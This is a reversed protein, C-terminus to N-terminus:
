QIDDNLQNLFNYGIVGLISFVTLVIVWTMTELFVNGKKYKLNGVM